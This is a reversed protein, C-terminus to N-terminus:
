VQLQYMLLDLEVSLTIMKKATKKRNETGEKKRGLQVVGCFAKLRREVSIEANGAAGKWVNEQM